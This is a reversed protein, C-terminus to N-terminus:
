LISDKQLPEQDDQVKLGLKRYEDPDIILGQNFATDLVDLRETINIPESKDMRFLPYRADAYNQDYIIHIAKNICPEIFYMDDLALDRRVKFPALNEGIRMGSSDQVANAHGLLSIAIGENCVQTFDKHDGTTRNTEVIDIETGQPMTGRSSRAIADLGDELEQKFDATAGPPYKGILIGEGFAEIFSAWSELGFNKLIFDRLVPLMIPTEKSECVLTTEPIPRLSKGWDVKLIGDQDYKFYKQDYWKFGTIVQLGNIVEWEFDIVSYIYTTAEHIKKFFLRSNINEFMNQIFLAREQDAANDPDFPKITWDRQFGSRRSALCGAVYSDIASEKMLAILDTFVGDKYQQYARKYFDPNFQVRAQSIKKNVTLM